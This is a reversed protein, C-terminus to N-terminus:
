EKDRVNQSVDDGKRDGGRHSLCTSADMIGECMLSRVVWRYLEVIEGTWSLFLPFCETEDLFRWRVPNGLRWAGIYGKPFIALRLLVLVFEAHKSSRATDYLTVGAHVDLIDVCAPGVRRRADRGRQRQIEM